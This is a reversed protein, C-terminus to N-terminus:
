VSDLGARWARVIPGLAAGERLVADIEEDPVDALVALIHDFADALRRARTAIDPPANEMDAHTLDDRPLAVRHFAYIFKGVREYDSREGGPM